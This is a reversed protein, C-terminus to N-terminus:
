RSGLPLDFRNPNTPSMDCIDKSAFGVHGDMYLVNIGNDHAYAPSNPAKGPYDYYDKVIWKNTSEPGIRYCNRWANTGTHGKRWNYSYSSYGPWGFPPPTAGQPYASHYARNISAPCYLVRSSTLYNWYYLKGICSCYNLSTAAIYTSDTQNVGDNTPAICDNWDNAYMHQATGIQKLNNMCMVQRAKARARSLAPLLMAALIAIIAIVVLLEILTFGHIPKSGREVEACKERKEM